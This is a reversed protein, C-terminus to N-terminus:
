FAFVRPAAFGPLRVADMEAFPVLALSSGARIARALRTVGNEAWGTLLRGGERLQDRFADPTQEVAGDVIIADFPAAEPAGGAMDDSVTTVSAGMQEILAAAYGPVSAVLLVKEGRLIGAEAILRTTVLPPNLARGEGLPIAIDVYALAQKDAPLFAERPTAEIAALLRPDSVNNTRLQGAIM